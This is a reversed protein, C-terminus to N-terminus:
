PRSQCALQQQQQQEQQQQAPLIHKLIHYHQLFASGVARVKRVAAKSLLRSLSMATPEAQWLVPLHQHVPQGGLPLEWVAPEGAMCETVPGHDQIAQRTECEKTSVKGPRVVCGGLLMHSPLGDKVINAGFTATYRCSSTAM